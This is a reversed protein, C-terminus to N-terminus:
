RGKFLNLEAVINMVEAARQAVSLGTQGHELLFIARDNLARIRALQAPTAHGSRVYLEAVAAAGQYGNNAVILGQTARMVVVDGVSSRAVAATQNAALDAPRGAVAAVRTVAEAVTSAVALAACASLFILVPALLALALGRTRNM